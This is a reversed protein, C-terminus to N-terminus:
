MNRMERFSCRRRCGANCRATSRAPAATGAAARAAPSPSRPARARPAAGRRGRRRQGRRREGPEPEAGRHRDRVIVHRDKRPEAHHEGADGRRLRQQRRDSPERPPPCVRAEAAREDPGPAATERDIEHVLRDEQAYEVGDRQEERRARGCLRRREQTLALTGAGRRPPALRAQARAQVQVASSSLRRSRQVREKRSSSVAGSRSAARASARPHKRASGYRSKLIM